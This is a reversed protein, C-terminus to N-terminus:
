TEGAAKVKAACPSPVVLAACDTVIVFVPEDAALRPAIENVPEFADSKESCLAQEGTRLAPICQWTEIENPGAM